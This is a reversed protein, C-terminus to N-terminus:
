SNPPAPTAPQPTTLNTTARSRLPLGRRWLRLAQLHIRAMVALTWLPQRLVALALAARTAPRYSGGLSAVLATAGDVALEIRVCGASVGEAGRRFGFRFRYGGDVGFFPSVAFRKDAGLWEGDAIPRGDAHALLYRHRQGYTNNVEAIVARLAGDARQCFFFSVPNFAYGLVRPFTHLWLAGDADAIGAAALAARAQERLPQGASAGLGYDADHLAVLGFRNRAVGAAELAADGTDLRLRLWHAPYVFAHRLPALRAHRLWGRGLWAVPAGADSM